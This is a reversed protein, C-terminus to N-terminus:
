QIVVVRSIRDSTNDSARLSYTIADFVDPVDFRLIINVPTKGFILEKIIVSKVSVIALEMPISVANDKKPKPKGMSVGLKPVSIPYADFGSKIKLRQHTQNGATNTRNVKDNDILKTPWAIRRAASERCRRPQFM